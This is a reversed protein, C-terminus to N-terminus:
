KSHHRRLRISEWGTSGDRQSMRVKVELADGERKITLGSFLAENPEVSELAFRISKEKTEWAVFEKSFHKVKLSWGEEDEGLVMLEYFSVEKKPVM